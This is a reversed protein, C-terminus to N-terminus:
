RARAASKSNREMASSFSQPNLPLPLAAASSAVEVLARRLAARLVQEQAQVQPAVQPLAPVQAAPVPLARLVAQARVVPERPQVPALVAVQALVVVLVVPLVAGVAVAPPASM